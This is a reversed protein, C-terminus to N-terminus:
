RLVELRVSYYHSWTQTRYYACGKAMIVHTFTCTSTREYHGFEVSEVVHRPSIVAPTSIPPSSSNPTPNPGATKTPTPSCDLIPKHGTEAALSEPRLCDGWRDSAHWVEGAVTLQSLSLWVESVLCGCEETEHLLTVITPASAHNRSSDLLCFHGITFVNPIFEDSGDVRHYFPPLLRACLVHPVRDAMRELVVYSM